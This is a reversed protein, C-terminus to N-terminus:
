IQKQSRRTYFLMYANTSMGPQGFIRGRQGAMQAAEASVVGSAIKRVDDQSISTVRDDDLKVWRNVDAVPDPRSLAFYHGFEANGSHIVISSLDYIHNDDEKSSVVYPKMDITDPFEFPDGLKAMEMSDMDFAFRKLHFCLVQPLRTLRIFKEADQHGHEGAKYQSDGELKESQLLHAISKQLTNLQPSIDLSLDFFKQRKTKSYDVNTCRITQETEGRLMHSLTGENGQEDKEEDGILKNIVKLHFEQADEQIRPNIGLQHVIFATDVCGGLREACELHMAEIVDRFTEGFSGEVFSCNLISDRYPITQYISQVISNMYCTNGQNKLGCGETVGNADTERAATAVSVAKGRGDRGRRRNFLRLPNARKLPQWWKSSTIVYANLALVGFLIFHLRLM